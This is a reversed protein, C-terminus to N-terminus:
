TRCMFLVVDSSPRLSAYPAFNRVFQKRLFKRLRTKLGQKRQRQEQEQKTQRQHAGSQNPELNLAHM